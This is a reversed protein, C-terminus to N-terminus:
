VSVGREILRSRFGLGFRLPQTAVQHRDVVFGFLRPHALGEATPPPQYKQSPM